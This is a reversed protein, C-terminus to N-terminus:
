KVTVTINQTVQQGQSNQATLTYTATAAPSIDKFGTLVVAGVGQNLSVSSANATQWTLRVSEGKNISVSSATFQNILPQPVSTVVITVNASVSTVSNIATLTYTATQSPTVIAPSTGNGVITSGQKLTVTTANSTNWSLTSSQGSTITAPTAIFSSIVPAQPQPNVTVTVSGTVSEGTSSSATLVYTSTQTPSILVSTGSSAINTSGLKLVINNANTTTWSITSNQGATISSPNASLSTIVPQGVNVTVTVSSSVENSGNNATLTYTTTQFPSVNLSNSPATSIIASGAKLTVTTANSTSWSLTTSQGFNISAPLAAFSSIVPNGPQPASISFYNDSLDEAIKNGGDYLVFRIRYDAAPSVEILGTKGSDYYYTQGWGLSWTYSAATVSMPSPVLAGLTSSGKVLEFDLRPNSLSSINTIGALISFATQTGDETAMVLQEGGNPSTLTISPTLVNNVTITYSKNGSLSGNSASLAFTYTGATTPTGTIHCFSTGGACDTTQLGPPLSGSLTWSFASSYGLPVIGMITGTYYTGVTGNSLSDPSFSIVPISVTMVNGPGGFNLITGSPHGASYFQLAFTSGSQASQALDVKIAVTKSSDSPIVLSFNNFDLYCTKDYDLFTASGLVVGSTVDTLTAKSFACFGPTGLSTNTAAGLSTLVFDGGISSLKTRLAEVGTMGPQITKAIPTDAALKLDLQPYASVISLPADSQDYNGGGYQKVVQIYYDSGPPVTSGDGLTGVSHWALSTDYVLSSGIWGYSSGNAATLHVTYADGTKYNSDEWDIMAASGKTWIEGGNPSIIRIAAPPSTLVSLRFDRYAIQSGSKVQVTFNYNGTATPTGALVLQTQCYFDDYGLGSPCAPYWGLGPPLSGSTINWEYYYAGGTAAISASYPTNTYALPMSQTYIELQPVELIFISAPLFIRQRGSELTLTFYFSGAQTPKGYFVAPLQDCKIGAVLYCDISRVASSPISLNASSKEGLQEFVPCPWQICQVQENALYIGPPLQGKIGWRYSGSGGRAFVAGLYQEGEYGLPVYIDTFELNEEQIPIVKVDLSQSIPKKDSAFVTLMFLGSEEPAYGVLGSGSETAYIIEVAPDAKKQYSLESASGNSSWKFGVEDGQSIERATATFSYIQLKDETRLFDATGCFVNQYVDNSLYVHVNIPGIGPHKALDFKAFWGQEKEGRQGQYWVIDDQGNESSWTPFFVSTADTVGNAYVLFEGSTKSTEPSEPSTNLCSPWVAPPPCSSTDLFQRNTFLTNSGTATDQAYVWIEHTAGDKLDDPIRFSFGHQESAPRGMFENVDPWAMATVDAAILRGIGEPGDAFVAVRVAAEPTDTDLVWGSISDCTALEFNGEVGNAGSSASGFNFDVIGKQDLVYVLGVVNAMISIAFGMAMVKAFKDM